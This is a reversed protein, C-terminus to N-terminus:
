QGRELARSRKIAALAVKVETHDDWKGELVEAAFKAYAPNAVNVSEVLKRAELLDPDVPPQWNLERLTAALVEVEQRRWIGDRIDKASVSKEEADYAAALRRRAEVTYIDPTTM